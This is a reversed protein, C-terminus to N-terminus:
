ASVNLGIVVAVAEEDDLLLPPLRNGAGLRYGGAAGPEAAVHYGLDRLTAIDGRITRPSVEFQRALASGTHWGPVQLQSLVRLVRASTSLMWWCYNRVLFLVQRMRAKATRTAVEMEFLPSMM